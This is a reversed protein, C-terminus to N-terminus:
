HVTSDHAADALFKLDPDNDLLKRFEDLDALVAASNRLTLAERVANWRRILAGSAGIREIVSFVEEAPADAQKWVSNRVAREIQDVDNHLQRRIRLWRIETGRRALHHQHYFVVVGGGLLLLSGVWGQLTAMAEADSGRGADRHARWLLPDFHRASRGAPYDWWVGVREQRAASEAAEYSEALKRERLFARSLTEGTSLVAVGSRVAMLAVDAQGVRCTSLREGVLETAPATPKAAPSVDYLSCRLQVDSQCSAVAPASAKSSAVATAPPCKSAVHLSAVSEILSALSSEFTAEPGVRVGALHSELPTQGDCAAIIINGVIKAPCDTWGPLPTATSVPGASGNSMAFAGSKITYKEEAWRVVRASVSAIFLVLPFAVFVFLVALMWLPRDPLTAEKETTAKDPTGSM